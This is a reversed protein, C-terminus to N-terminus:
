ATEDDKQTPGQKKKKDLYCPNYDCSFSFCELFIENRTILAMCVNHCYKVFLFM